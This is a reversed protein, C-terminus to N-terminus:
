PSAISMMQHLAPGAPERHSARLPRDRRPMRRIESLEDTPIRIEGLAADRVLLDGNGPKISEARLLSKNQLAIQYAAESMMPSRLIVAAIEDVEFWRLGFLVSSIKMRGRDIGKFEGEVVDGNVLVVSPRHATVKDAMRPVLWRFLIRSASATSISHLGPHDAFRIQTEDVSELRAVIMSGSRAEIRPVISEEVLFEGIRVSDLTASALKLENTGALALGAYVRQDFPLEVTDILRWGWGNGSKYASIMNERRKLRLWQGQRMTPDELSQTIESSAERRQFVGSRGGSLGLMVNRADANLTERIMLGVKATPYKSYENTRGQMPSKPQLATVRAIIDCDGQMPQYLFHLSDSRGALSTGSSSITFTGARYNASGSIQTSGIDDAQWRAPLRNDSNTQVLPPFAVTLRPRDVFSIRALNTAQIEIVYEKAANAVVFGGEAIRIQGQYKKGDLTELTGHAGLLNQALL